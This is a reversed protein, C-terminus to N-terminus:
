YFAEELAEWVKLAQYHEKVDHCRIISAGNKIAQLHLSLTGPLREHIECPIIMDIMSRRSAGILLPYGLSLFYELNKLLLINHQLKKGFGIGVDLIIDKIGFDQAKKIREEFFTYIELLIDDYYPNKQMDKPTGKMHMLVVKANYKSAIKAVKDNSLATIDNVIKFGRDLAYELCKPSYSDLSFLAKDYLKSIYVEDIIPQIRRLEEEESVAESGPRSSVGGIDVIDAGDNIMTEIQMVADKGKFRSGKYFSDDNANIVGAIEVKRNKTQNAYRMINKAFEKLGFPQSLEKKSLQKLHANTAVLLADSKENKCLITDKHVVLDAGVSLADQKLILAAPNKIDKLYIYNLEMKEKLISNGETTSGIKAFISEKDIQNSLKIIKM